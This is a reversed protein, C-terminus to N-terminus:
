MDPSRCNASGSRREKSKRKPEISKGPGSEKGPEAPSAKDKGSFRSLLDSLSFSTRRPVRGNGSSRRESM